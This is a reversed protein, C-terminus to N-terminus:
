RRLLTFHGVYQANIEKINIEYWYDTTPMDRGLYTGDWGQDAGRYEILKKGFRDYIAITADPYAERLFTIDWTDNYGDGNPTFSPPFVLQPANMLEYTTESRCGAADIIYFSHMDFSLHGKVPDNDAPLGDVGFKVPPTGTGPLHTIKMERIGVSDVLFIVPKSNVVITIEDSETCTGRTMQLMYTTTEEPSVTIQSGTRIGEFEPSTWSYTYANYSAANIEVNAGECTQPNTTAITGKDVLSEDVTVVATFPQTCEGEGAAMTYGATVTYAYTSQYSGVSKTYPPRVTIVSGDGNKRIITMDNDWTFWLGPSDSSLSVEIEEGECVVSVPKSYAIRVEPKQYVSAKVETRPLSSVCGNHVAEVWYSTTSGISPTTYSLGTHFATGGTPTTYWKIEGASAQAGVNVTGEGCRAGHAPLNVTPTPNVTITFSSSIGPCGSTAEPTVEITATISANTSNTAAFAAINGTGSTALGIATHTNTWKYTIGSTM